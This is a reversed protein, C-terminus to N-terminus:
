KGKRARAPKAPKSPAARREKVARTLKELDDHPVLDITASVALSYAEPINVGLTAALWVMTAHDGQDYKARVMVTNM